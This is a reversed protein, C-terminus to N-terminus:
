SQFLDKEDSKSIGMRKKKLSLSSYIKKKRRIPLLKAPNTLITTNRLMANAQTVTDDKMRQNNFSCQSFIRENNSFKLKKTTPNLSSPLSKPKTTFFQDWGKIINGINQTSELYKSELDYIHSDLKRIYNEVENKKQTIESQLKRDDNDNNM